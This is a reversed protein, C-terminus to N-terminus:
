QVSEWTWLESAPPLYDAARDDGASIQLFAMAAANILPHAEEASLYDEGCDDFSSSFLCADSFTYHGAGELEGIHRPTTVLANYLPKVYYMPTLNDQGGTLIEFPVDIQDLGGVLAEYGAPSMAIAATVRSDSLDAIRTEPHAEGWTAVDDCLWGGGQEDCFAAVADLDIPAGAVAFTTYGGFSHGSMVYGADPDVCGAYAGGEANETLLWDYSASIDLPRRFVVEWKRSEDDDFATNYTHMPAVVVYGHSALYETFFISQFNIGANGHSFLVVPRTQSCDPTTDATALGSILGMYAYTEAGAATAPYWVQVELTLGDPGPAEGSATGVPYPGAADPPYFEPASDVPAGSDEAPTDKDTCALALLLPLAIM